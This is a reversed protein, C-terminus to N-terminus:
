PIKLPKIPNYPTELPSKGRAELCACIYRVATCLMVDVDVTYSLSHGQKLPTLLIPVRLVM